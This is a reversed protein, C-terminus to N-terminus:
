IPVLSLLYIKNVTSYFTLSYVYMPKPSFDGYVGSREVRNDWGLAITM